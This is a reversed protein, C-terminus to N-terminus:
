KNQHSQLFKADTKERATLNQHCLCNCYLYIPFLLFTGLMKVHKRKTGRKIPSPRWHLFDTTEEAIKKVPLITCFVDHKHNKQVSLFHDCSDAHFYLMKMPLRQIFKNVNNKKVKLISTLRRISRKELLLTKVQTLCINTLFHQSLYFNSTTLISHMPMKWLPLIRLKSNRRQFQKKQNLESKKYINRSYFKLLTINVEKPRM